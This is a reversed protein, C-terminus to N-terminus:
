KKKGTAKSAIMAFEESTNEGEEPLEDVGYLDPYTDKKILELVKRNRPDKLWTIAADDTAGLCVSDGYMYLKQKVIIVHKDRADMFLLRLHIDDGNYLNIIRDPDKEAISLLYDTVDADSINRMHKGLLRAMQVRGEAGRPDDLIYTGADHIKKKKSVRKQAEYGPREVYIEAIGQRPRLTGKVGPGDFLNVGKDDTADRSQAIYICNKIAEWVAADYPEDLNFTKGDEIVFTETEKIYIKGSNREEDTLIMDGVSNVTKVCDPYRGTKPNKSPQIYYKMGVKGYVSRLIIINEAPSKLLANDTSM